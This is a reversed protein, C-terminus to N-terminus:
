RAATTPHEDSRAGRVMRPDTDFTWAVLRAWRIFSAGQQTLAWGGGIRVINGSREQESMRREIQAFDELYIRRFADEMEPTTFIRQEHHAMHGLIFVSISRDVTVPAIVLFSLNLGLSLAAAAIAESITVRTRPAYIGLLALALAIVVFSLLCLALGRYFLIDIGGALGTKFLAVLTVLGLAASGALLAGSRLAAKGADIAARNM